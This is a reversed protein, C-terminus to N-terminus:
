EEEYLMVALYECYGLIAFGLYTLDNPLSYRAHVQITPM